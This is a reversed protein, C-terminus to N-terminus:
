ADANSCGRIRDMEPAIERWAAPSRRIFITARGDLRVSAANRPLLAWYGEHCAKVIDPETFKARARAHATNVGIIEIVTAPLRVCSEQLEAGWATAALATFSMAFIIPRM